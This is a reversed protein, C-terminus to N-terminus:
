KVEMGHTLDWSCIAYIGLRERVLSGIRRFSYILLVNAAIAQFRGNQVVVQQM